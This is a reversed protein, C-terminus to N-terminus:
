SPQKEIVASTYNWPLWKQPCTALESAHKQLTALYDFPNIDNLNCTHILSMFLDGVQAGHETRYFLSNKRHLITKKLAQECINNDLPANPVKLFLTLADWHKIMYRIAQGLGSNPEILNQDLQEHFWSNLSKMLPGSHEQHFYLREDVTLKQEKAIQDNNYVQALIELVYQCEDPFNQLVEVFSRRGHSLCNALMTKFDKPINRSLADCMQIPPSHNTRHELLDNLNEGAHQRGTFFLAIRHDDSTSLIGTTFIGKRQPDKEQMLTLIKMTTDDNYIVDGQAANRLLELYVPELETALRDVIEFQTSSPLPIGMSKQLKEIRYFPMGSGYKLLAIVAKANADYKEEGVGDPATATFIEGCLNCRLRQLQYVIGSLPANGTIRVILRPIKQEYVKGKLCEPCNDGSKISPHSVNVKEAATYEAAAKRGNGKKKEKQPKPERSEKVGAIKDLKETTKGFLMRLLRQVSASKKGVSQSLLHITEAMSELIEYDEPSLLEKARKLFANVQEVTLDIKKIKKM